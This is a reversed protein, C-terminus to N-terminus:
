SSSSSRPCEKSLFYTSQFDFIFLNRFLIFFLLSLHLENLNEASLIILFFAFCRKSSMERLFVLLTLQHDFMFLSVVPHTKLFHNATTGLHPTM